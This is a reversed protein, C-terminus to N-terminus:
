PRQLWALAARMVLYAAILLIFTRRSAFWHMARELWTDRHALVPLGARYASVDAALAAASAYRDAAAPALCKRVIARLRVSPVAALSKLQREVADLTDPPTNASLLWFLLAGLSFVDAEPGVSASSAPHQQEPAMFGPTGGRAVADVGVATALGWDLVLVEGFPGIMINAPKLDRHAIGAAHAFAVADAIREFVSLRASESTLSAAHSVLTEGHVLKMVYFARGDDLVGADHIPVIGPHELRALIRAERDLREDLATGRVVANSIKIAVDRDLRVDRAAYVAGMGGRGLPRDIVYRDAPLAPWVAVDRLRQVADNSLWTM